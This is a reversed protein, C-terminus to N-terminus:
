LLEAIREAVAATSLNTNAAPVSPMVSADAVVLNEYGHVRGSSDVVSGIACTGVPHFLGRAEALV